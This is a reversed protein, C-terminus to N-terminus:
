FEIKNQDGVDFFYRDRFILKVLSKATAEARTRGNETTVYGSELPTLDGRAMLRHLPMELHVPRVECNFWKSVEAGMDDLGLRSTRTCVISVALELVTM